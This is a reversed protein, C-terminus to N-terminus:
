RLSETETADTLTSGVRRVGHSAMAAILLRDMAREAGEMLESTDGASFGRQRAVLGLQHLFPRRFRLFGEVAQSLSVGIASAVRGYEAAEATAEALREESFSGASDLHGLLAEALRRGHHRFWERQEDNLEFIWPVNQSAARAERRYASVLRSTTMGARSLSPRASRETPLLQELATRRYRRHGGPTTFAPVHGSDSWRRLTGPAVGLLRSAEGLGLWES